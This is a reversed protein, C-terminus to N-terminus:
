EAWDKLLTLQETDIHDFERNIHFIAIGMVFVAVFVDLLVGLEVLMPTGQVLGVGFVYIGNELVLYALVQTLATRRTVIVFLGILTTFLAIPVVLSSVAPRPLPLRASLWFSVALMLTGILLSSIYGVLPEVERRVDADQLVRSLLWPFAAGKLAVIAAALMLTRLVLEDHHVLLTLVGLISGQFAVIRICRTLRSSAVLLLSTLALLVLATDVWVSM